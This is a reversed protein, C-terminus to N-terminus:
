TKGYKSRVAPPLALDEVKPNPTRPEPNPTRPEPTLPQPTRTHVPIKSIDIFHEVNKEVRARTPADAGEDHPRIAFGFVEVQSRDHAEFVKYMLGNRVGLGFSYSLYGLRLRQPQKGGRPHHAPLAAAHDRVPVATHKRCVHLVAQEDVDLLLVQSPTWIVDAPTGGPGQSAAIARHLHRRCATYKTAWSDLITATYHELQMLLVMSATQTDDLRVAIRLVRIAEDIDGISWLAQGLNAFYLAAPYLGAATRFHPVAEKSRGMQHLAIALNGHSFPDGPMLETARLLFAAAQPAQGKILLQEGVYYVEEGTMREAEPPLELVLPPLARDPDEHSSSSIIRHQDRAAAGDAEISARPYTLALLLVLIVSAECRQM